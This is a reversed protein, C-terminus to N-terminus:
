MQRLRIELPAQRRSHRAFDRDRVLEPLTVMFPVLLEMIAADDVVGAPRVQEAHHGPAVIEALQFPDDLGKGGQHVVLHALLHTRRLRWSWLRGPRISPSKM